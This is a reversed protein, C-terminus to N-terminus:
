ERRLFDVVETLKVESLYENDKKEINLSFIQNPFEFDKKSEPLKLVEIEVIRKHQIVKLSDQIKIKYSSKIFKGNVQLSRNDILEKIKSRRKVVRAYLLFLDVRM